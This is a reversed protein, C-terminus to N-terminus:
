ARDRAARRAASPMSAVFGVWAGAWMWGALVDSPYHAGLTLQSFGVLALVLAGLVVVPARWRTAWTVLVVAGVLAATNAAHGSPFGYPSLPESGPWLGPRDRAFLEKLLPNVAWVVAVATVFRASDAWRRAFLLAAVVAVALGALPVLDTLDAAVSSLDEVQGGAVRHLEVLAQRDGPLEGAWETWAAVFAFGALGALPLGGAWWPLQGARGPVM